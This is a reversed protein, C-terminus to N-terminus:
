ARERVSRLAFRASSNKIDGWTGDAHQRLVRGTPKDDRGLIVGYDEFVEEYSQSRSRRCFRGIRVIEIRVTEFQREFRPFRIIEAM